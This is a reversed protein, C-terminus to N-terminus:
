RKWRVITILALWGVCLITAIATVAKDTMLYLNGHTWVFWVAEM